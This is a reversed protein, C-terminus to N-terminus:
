TFIPCVIGVFVFILHIKIGIKIFFCSLLIQMIHIVTVGFTNWIFSERYTSRCMLTLLNLVPKFKTVQCLAVYIVAALNAISTVYRNSDFALLINGYHFNRVSEGYKYYCLFGVLTYIVIEISHQLIIAKRIVKSKKGEIEKAFDFVTHFTSYSFAIIPVAYLFQQFNFYEIKVQNDLNTDSYFLCCVFICAVVILCFIISIIAVPGFSKFRRFYIFPAILINVFIVWFSGNRDLMFDPINIYFNKSFSTFSATLSQQIVISYSIMIFLMSFFMLTHLFRSLFVNSSVTQIFLIYNKAKIYHNCYILAQNGFFNLLSILLSLLIFFGLGSISTAIPISLLGIGLTTNLLTMLLYFLSIRKSDM